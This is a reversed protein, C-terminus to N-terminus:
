GGFALHQLGRTAVVAKEFFVKLINNNENEIKWRARGPAVIEAVQEDDIPLSTAFANHYLITGDARTTTLECWQVTLAEDQNRLPVDSVYRYTDTDAANQFDDLNPPKFTM